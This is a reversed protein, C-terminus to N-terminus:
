KWFLLFHSESQLVTFDSVLKFQYSVKQMASTPRQLYGYSIYSLWIKNVFAMDGCQGLIPISQHRAVKTSHTHSWLCNSSLLLLQLPHLLPAVALRIGNPLLLQLPHLWPTAALRICDSLLLQASVILSCCSFQRLQIAAHLQRSCYSNMFSHTKVEQGRTKKQSWGLIDM